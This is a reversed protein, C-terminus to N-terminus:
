GVVFNARWWKLWVCAFSKPGSAAYFGFLRNGIFPLNAMLLVLM